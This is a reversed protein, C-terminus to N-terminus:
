TVSVLTCLSCGSSFRAGGEESLARIPDWHMIESKTESLPGWQHVQACVAHIWTYLCPLNAGLFVRELASFWELIRENHKSALWRKIDNRLSILSVLLVQVEPRWGISENEMVQM